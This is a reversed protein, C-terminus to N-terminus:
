KFRLYMHTAGVQRNCGVNLRRARGLGEPVNLSSSVTRVVNKIEANFTDLLKNLEESTSTLFDVPSASLLCAM